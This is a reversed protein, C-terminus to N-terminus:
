YCIVLRDRYEHSQSCCLDLPKKLPSGHRQFKNSKKLWKASLFLASGTLIAQSELLNM